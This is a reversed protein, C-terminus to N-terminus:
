FTGAVMPGLQGWKLLGQLAPEHLLKVPFSYKSAHM